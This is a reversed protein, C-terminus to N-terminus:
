KREFWFKEDRPGDETVVVLKVGDVKLKLVTITQSTGSYVEEATRSLTVLGDALSWVGNTKDGLLDWEYTNDERLTLVSGRVMEEAGLAANRPDIDEAMYQWVGVIDEDSM